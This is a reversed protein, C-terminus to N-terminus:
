TEGSIWGKLAGAESGQQDKVKTWQSAGHRGNRSPIQVIFGYLSLPTGGHSHFGGYIYIYIYM